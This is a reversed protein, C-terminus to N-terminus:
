GSRGGHKGKGEKGKRFMEYISMALLFWGFLKRLDGAALRAALWSGAGAGALGFIIIPVGMSFDISKNRIHITMAVVGTPIFFLLNVSQAIHQPPNAALVLAPILVAGGGMGMGSIIGAALGTLLLIM